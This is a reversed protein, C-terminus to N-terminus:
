QIKLTTPMSLEVCRAGETNTYWKLHIGLYKDGKNNITIEYKEKLCNILHTKNEEGVVKVGFDDVVLTFAIPRTEHVFLCPSNPAQNYGYHKLHTVLQDQALKGAQPLGYIGKNIEVLVSDKYLLAELNHKEITQKPLHKRSIRMYEKRPLPTGLYFNSIDLAIFEAGPTSVTSNLLIKVDEM